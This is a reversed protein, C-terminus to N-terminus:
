TSVKKPVLLVQSAYPSSSRTIVGAELMEDVM